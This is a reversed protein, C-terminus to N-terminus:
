LVVLLATAFLVVVHFSQDIAMYVPDGPGPSGGKIRRNWAILARSDDQILHPLFILPVLGLALASTHGAVWAIAPAFSLTYVTVHTFLARRAIRNRSLGGRKNVAQWDTQLLFDGVLHSVLFVAFVEEWRV